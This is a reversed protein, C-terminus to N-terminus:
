KKFEKLQCSTVNCSSCSGGKKIMSRYFLYGAGGIVFMMIIIDLFGM